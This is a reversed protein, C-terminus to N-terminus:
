QNEENPNPNILQRVARAEVRLSGPGVHAAPLHGSRIWRRITPVSVRLAAAAEGITLLPPLGQAVPSSNVKV